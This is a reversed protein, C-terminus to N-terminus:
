CLRPCSGLGGALHEKRFFVLFSKSKPTRPAAPTASLSAAPIGGALNPSLMRIMANQRSM